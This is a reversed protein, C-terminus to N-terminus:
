TFIGSGKQAFIKLTEIGQDGVEIMGHGKCAVMSTLGTLGHAKDAARHFGIQGIHSFNCHTQLTPGIKADSYLGYLICDHFKLM